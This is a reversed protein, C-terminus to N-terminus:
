DVHQVLEILVGLTSKPHLFAVITNHIGPRPQEDILRVGREKVQALAAEINEVRYAVHHMGPGREDLFKAFAAEDSTPAILELLTDGVHAIAVEMYREPLELREWESVEFSQSYFRVADDLNHVVMGLHDVATFM